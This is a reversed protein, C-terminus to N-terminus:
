RYRIEVGSIRSDNNKSLVEVWYAGKRIRTNVFSTDPYWAREQIGTVQVWGVLETAPLGDSDLFNTRSLLAQSISTSDYGEAAVSIATITKGVPLKVPAIMRCEKDVTTPLLLATISSNTQVCNEAMAGLPVMPNANRSVPKFQQPYVRITGAVASGPGLLASGATLITVLLFGRFLSVRRM